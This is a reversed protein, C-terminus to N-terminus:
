GDMQVFFLTPKTGICSPKRPRHLNIRKWGVNVFDCLNCFDPLCANSYWITQVNKSMVHCLPISIYPFYLCTVRKVFSHVKGRWRVINRIYM